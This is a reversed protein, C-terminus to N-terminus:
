TAITRDFAHRKQLKVFADKAEAGKAVVLLGAVVCDLRSVVHPRWAGWKPECGRSARHVLAGVLTQARRDGLPHVHLGAPKFVVMADDDEFLVDVAENWPPNWRGASKLADMAAADITIRDGNSVPDFTRGIAGGPLRVHGQTILNGIETIPVVILRAKLYDVLRMRGPVGIVVHLIRPSPM